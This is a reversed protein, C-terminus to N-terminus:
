EMVRLGTWGVIIYGIALLLSGLGIRLGSKLSETQAAKQADEKRSRIETQGKAQLTQAQKELFPGVSEPNKKFSKIQEAEPQSLQNAQVAQDLQADSANLLQAIQARQQQLAGSLQQNLKTEAQEAEKGVREQMTADNLRVNNLHLPFLLIYMLGMVSALIAAWLQLNKWWALRERSQGSTSDVWYGTFLLALGVLPVIGRDVVQTAFGLQWQRDLLQYPISLVIFDLLVSLTIIMGVTKLARSIFPTIPRSGPAKLSTMFFRWSRLDKSLIHISALFCGKSFV